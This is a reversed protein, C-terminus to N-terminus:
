SSRPPRRGRGPRGPHVPHGPHVPRVPHAPSKKRSGPGEADQKSGPRPGSKPPNDKTFGPRQAPERGPAGGSEPRRTGPAKRYADSEDGAHPAGHEQSGTRGPPTVRDAPAERDQPAGDRDFPTKGGRGPTKDPLEVELAGTKPDRADEEPWHVTLAAGSPMRGANHVLVLGRESCAYRATRERGPITIPDSLIRVFSYGSAPRPAYSADGGFDGDFEMGFEEGPFVDEADYEGAADGGRKAKYAVEADEDFFDAPAFPNDPIDGQAGEEETAHRLVLCSLSLSRKELRARRTLGLLELPVGAGPGSALVSFHCWGNNRKDLMPCPGCHPCPSEPVLGSGSFMAAGRLLAVLKGGLRTGPEVSVFRGEPALRSAILLALDELRRALPMRRPPPLENLVNGAMICDAKGKFGRLAADLPSRVLEFRWPSDPALREFIERGSNMPHPAVDVCTFSLKLPRLEPCVAWLALPLTLPGSGLDLVRSGDRLVAELRLGPLLWAMRQLNWPLFYRCYASLLRPSSWYPQGGLERESTLLRSLDRVAHPLDRKHPASLPMAEAIARIASAIAASTERSPPRFLNRM